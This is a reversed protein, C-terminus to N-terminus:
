WDKVPDEVFDEVDTDDPLTWRNFYREFFDIHNEISVTWYDWDHAGARTVYEHTIGRSVLEDHLTQNVIYFTDSTGCDIYIALKGDTLKDLQSMVTHSQWKALNDARSGLLNAINWKEAWAEDYSFDVGGSMSGVAGFVDSHRIANWLAGHGGMSLGTIARASRDAITPYNADTYEVLDKYIFTEYQFEATTDLYWSNNGDPCVFIIGKENAYKVLEPKQTIWDKHNGSYGHLLYVVPYKQGAEGSNPVIYEVNVSRNMGSAPVQVAEEVADPVWELRDTYTNGFRDTVEIECWSAGDSPTMSFFYDRTTLSTDYKPSTKQLYRAYGDETVERTMEVRTKGKDTYYVPGWLDDYMWINVHVKGDSTWEEQNPYTARFQGEAKSQGYDVKKGLEYTTAHFRWEIEDGDVEVVVFGRWAGDCTIRDNYGLNGTSRGLTHSDANLYKSEGAGKYSYNFYDHNHGAWSNVSKYNSLLARTTAHNKDNNGGVIKRYVQSHSCIMINKDKDVHELHGRLWTMGEDSIGNKYPASGTNDEVGDYDTMINDIFLYHVNGIEVGHNLPGFHSEFYAAGEAESVVGTRPSDHNGIVHFMPFNLKALEPIYNNNWVRAYDHVMDGLTIGYVPCDTYTAAVDNMEMIMDKFTELSCYKYEDQMPTGHRVQPDACIIMTYKKVEAARRKLTFDAVCKGEEDPKIEQYFNKPIANEYEIEYEAPVTIFVFKHNATNTFMFYKGDKDTSVTQAGNSVLIGEIPEGTDKDTVTGSLSAMSLDSKDETVLSDKNIITDERVTCGTLFIGLLLLYLIRKM